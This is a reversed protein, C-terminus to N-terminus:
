PLFSLYNFQGLAKIFPQPEGADDFVAGMGGFQNFSALHAEVAGLDYFGGMHHPGIVHEGNGNV